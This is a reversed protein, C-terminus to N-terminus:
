AKAEVTAVGDEVELILVWAGAPEERAGEPLRASLETTRGKVVCSVKGRGGKSIPVTVMAELGPYDEPEVASTVSTGALNRLALDGLWACLAGMGVSVLLTTVTGMVLGGVLGMLGFFCAFFFIKRLPVFSLFGVSEGLDAADADVGLDAGAGGLAALLVVVGGVIFCALYIYFLIDM